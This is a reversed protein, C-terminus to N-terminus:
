CIRRRFGDPEVISLGRHREYILETADVLRVILIGIFLPISISIYLCCIQGFVVAGEM